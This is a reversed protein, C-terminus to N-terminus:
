NLKDIRLKMICLMRVECIHVLFNQWVQRLDLGGVVMLPLVLVMLLSSWIMLNIHFQITSMQIEKSYLMYNWSTHTVLGLSTLSITIIMWFACLNNVSGLEDLSAGLRRRCTDVRGVHNLLFTIDLYLQRRISLRLVSLLYCFLAWIITQIGDTIISIYTHITKRDVLFIYISARYFAVGFSWVICLFLLPKNVTSSEPQLYQIRKIIFRPHLATSWAFSSVHSRPYIHRLNAYLCLLPATAITGIYSSYSLLRLLQTQDGWYLVLYTMGDYVLFGICMIQLLISLHFSGWHNWRQM